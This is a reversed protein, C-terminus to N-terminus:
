KSILESLRLIEGVIQARRQHGRPVTLIERALADMRDHIMKNREANLSRSLLSLACFSKCDNLARRSRGSEDRGIERAIDNMTKNLMEFTEPAMKNNSM